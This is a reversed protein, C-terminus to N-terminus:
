EKFRVNPMKFCDKEDKNCYYWYKLKRFGNMIFFEIKKYKEENNETYYIVMEKTIYDIARLSLGVYISKVNKIYVDKKKKRFIIKIKNRYIIIYKVRFLYNYLLALSMIVYLFILTILYPFIIGNVTFDIKFVLCLLIVFTMFLTSLVIPFLLSFMFTEKIVNIKLPRKINMKYKKLKM